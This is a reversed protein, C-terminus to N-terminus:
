SLDGPFATTDDSFSQSHDREGRFRFSTVLGGKPLLETDESILETLVQGGSQVTVVHALGVVWIEAQYRPQEIRKVRDIHFLEPHIARQYLCLHLDEVRRKGQKTQGREM